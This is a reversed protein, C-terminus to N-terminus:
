GIIGNAIAFIASVLSFARVAPRLSRRDILRSAPRSAVLGAALAPLLRLSLTVQAATVKGALALATLSVALGFLFFVALTSRLAAGGRDQFVLAVAPGGVAAGTSMIGSAVGALFQWRSRPRVAPRVASLVVAVLILTGFLTSLHHAPVVVLVEAGVVAGVVRGGLVQPLGGLDISQRERVAVFGNLPAGLLLLTAPLAQPHVLALVPAAVLALLLLPLFVARLRLWPGRLAESSARVGM